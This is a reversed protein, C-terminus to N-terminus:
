ALVTLHILELKTLTLHKFKRAYTGIHVINCLLVLANIVKLCYKSLLTQIGHFTKRELFNLDDEM